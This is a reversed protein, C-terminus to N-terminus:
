PNGSKFFIECGISGRFCCQLLYWESGSDGIGGIVVPALLGPDHSANCTTATNATSTPWGAAVMLALHAHLRRHFRQGTM